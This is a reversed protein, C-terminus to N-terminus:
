RSQRHPQRQVDRCAKRHDNQDRQQTGIFRDRIARQDDDSLHSVRVAPVNEMGLRSAARVRANGCLLRNQDSILCPVLFGFTDINRALMTIQKEPHMRPSRANWKLTSIAVEEIQLRLSNKGSLILSRNEKSAM